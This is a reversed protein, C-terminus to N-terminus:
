HLQVLYLAPAFLISYRLLASLLLESKGKSMLTAPNGQVQALENEVGTPHPGMCGGPHGLEVTRVGQSSYKTRLLVSTEHIM